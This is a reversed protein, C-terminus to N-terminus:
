KNQGNIPSIVQAYCDEYYVKSYYRHVYQAPDDGKMVIAAVAHRCPIGVLEWFNYSCTKKDIDVVFKDYM